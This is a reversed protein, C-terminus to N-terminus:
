IYYYLNLFQAKKIRGLVYSRKMIIVFYVLKRKWLFAGGYLEILKGPYM